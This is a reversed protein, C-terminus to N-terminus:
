LSYSLSCSLCSEGKLLKIANYTLTNKGRNSNISPLILKCGSRLSKSGSDSNSLMDRLALGGSENFLKFVLNRFFLNRRSILTHLGLLLRGDTVSFAKQAKCILRIAKNQCYELRNTIYKNAFTVLTTCYELRSRIISIYITKAEEYTLLYRIKRLLYLSKNAKAITKFM